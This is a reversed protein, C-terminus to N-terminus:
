EPPQGQHRPRPVGRSRGQVGPHHRRASWCATRCGRRWRRGFLRWDMMRTKQRNGRTGLDRYAELVAKCVPIIDD